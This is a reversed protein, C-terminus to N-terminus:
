TSEKSSMIKRDVPKRKGRQAAREVPDHRRFVAVDDLHKAANTAKGDRVVM